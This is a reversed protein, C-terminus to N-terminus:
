LGETDGGAQLADARGAGGPAVAQFVELIGPFLEQVDFDDIVMRTTVPYCGRAFLGNCFGHARGVASNRCCSAAAVLLTSLRSEGIVVGIVFQELVNLLLVARRKVPFPKSVGPGPS